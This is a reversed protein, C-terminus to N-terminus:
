SSANGSLEALFHALRYLWLRKSGGSGGVGVSSMHVGYAIVGAIELGRASALLAEQEVDGTSIEGRYAGRVLALSLRVNNCTTISLLVYTNKTSKPRRM